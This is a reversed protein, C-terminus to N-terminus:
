EITKVEKKSRTVKIKPIAKVYYYYDDDEFQQRETKQYDLSFRFFQIIAVVIMAFLTGILMGGIGVGANLVINGIIFGFINVMGGVGIAIYQAYEIELRSVYYTVVIVVAFVAIMLIMGKDTLVVNLIYKYMAILVKPIAYVDAAKLELLGPLYTVIFYIFVGVGVSVIAVPGIMLGVLLPLVYALKMSLLLPVFIVLYAQKPFLRVFMLYVVLLVCFTIISAEISVFFLRGSIMVLLLLVFWVGPVFAVIVSLAFKVGMNNFLTFENKLDFQGIFSNVKSIIILALLFKAVPVIIREFRIYMSEILEKIELLKTM